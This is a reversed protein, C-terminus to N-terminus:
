SKIKDKIGSIKVEHKDPPIFMEMVITKGDMKIVPNKYREGDLTLDIKQESSGQPLKLVVDGGDPNYPVIEFIISDISNDYRLSSIASASELNFALFEGNGM